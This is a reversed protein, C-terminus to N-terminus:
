YPLPFDKTAFTVGFTIRHPNYNNIGAYQPYRWGMYAANLFTHRSLKYSGTLNYTWAAYSGTVAAGVSSLRSYGLQGSV